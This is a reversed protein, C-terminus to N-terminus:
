TSLPLDAGVTRGVSKKNMVLAALTGIPNETWYAPAKEDQTNM